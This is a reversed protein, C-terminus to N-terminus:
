RLVYVRNDHSVSMGNGTGYDPLPKGLARRSNNAATHSVGHIKALERDSKTWDWLARSWNLLSIEPMKRPGPYNFAKSEKAQGRRWYATGIQRELRNVNAADTERLIRFSYDARHKRKYLHAFARKSPKMTQGVYVCVGSKHFIGYVFFVKNM